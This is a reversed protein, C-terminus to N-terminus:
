RQAALRTAANVAGYGDYGNIRQVVEFFLRDGILETYLHLFEGGGPTRDYLVRFDRWQALRDAPIEWRAALDAYYNDSVALPRLGRAALRRAVAVIDDCGFAVHQVLAAHDEASGGLQPLNLVMRVSGDASALARSRILGYPDPLELNDSARLGLVSRFFLVAEDFRDFPVSLAVHDIGTLVGATVERGAEDPQGSRVDDLELSPRFDGPWAPEDDAGVACFFLDVGGPARVGPLYAEGPNRRRPLVTRGFADARNASRLQDRTGVGVAVAIPDATVPLEGSAAVGDTVLLRIDGQQWLRVPKSRHQGAPEFGLAWLTAGLDTGGVRTQGASGTPSTGTGPPTSGPVAIEVFGYGTLEAPAPPRYLEVRDRIQAAGPDPDVTAGQHLQEELWLLSRMADAATVASDARRFVDSFVELSLPGRYGAALLHEVFTPLDFSGQGPFCRHHRSWQLVDMSLDPADALQVFFIKEWPIRRIPEPDAGGSLIHFSDLCVGLHPHDAAAVIDYSRRYDDVYRGWALAEYAIRLGRDHALEALQHLHEAALADDDIALPSVNSCVLITAVGLQEMVDFKHRARRLNAAFLEPPMAEFDRFPQYLEIRLGLDAARARLQAPSSASAILDNEFIEVGDFNARAIAALKDELTGSVSVTAIAKRM